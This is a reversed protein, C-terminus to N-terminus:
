SDTAQPHAIQLTIVTLIPALIMGGIGWLRFGIYLAMLTVLPDLGLHRGLFKPELMSRTLTVVLYTSALGIARPTDQQLLCLLSWPLLVTGVGLVPFADVLCIGLAWLLAYPIRLIVLGLFLIIFSVGTLKCQATLWAGLVSRIQKGTRVLTRIRERPIQRLLWRRIRPLKASILFASIIATGLGLASNPLHSLLSGALGLLYSIGRDLLATGDSFFTNVNQELVPRLAEPSRSSLQLLWSRALSFSDKATQGLDPLVGALSSLERILFACVSLLLVALLSFAISIGIGASLFRPLRLKKQLFSVAPEASLALLAGLLFPSFLPLFFRIALWVTFFALIISSFKLPTSRL